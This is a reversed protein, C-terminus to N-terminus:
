HQTLIQSLLWDQTLFPPSIDQQDPITNLDGNNCGCRSTRHYSLRVPADAVYLVLDVWRIICIVYSILFQYNFSLCFMVFVRFLNLYFWEKWALDLACM